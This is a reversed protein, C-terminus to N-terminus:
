SRKYPKAADIYKNMEEFSYDGSDKYDSKDIFKVLETAEPPLILMKNSKLFNKVTKKDNPHLLFETEGIPKLNIKFKSNVAEIAAPSFSKKSVVVPPLHIQYINGPYYVSLQEYLKKVDEDTGVDLGIIIKKAKLTRLLAIQGSTAVKGLLAITREPGCKIASFIGECIIVTDSDKVGDYNWFNYSRFNGKSNLTKPDQSGTIDRAMYGMIEENTEITFVVRKADNWAYLPIKEIIEDTLGRKKLYEWALSDAKTLKHFSKPLYIPEPIADEKKNRQKTGKIQFSDEWGDEELKQTANTKESKIDFCLELAKPFSLNGIKMVLKIPNGKEGCSFCNYMGTEKNIYMKKSKGCNFCTNAILETSRENYLFGQEDLWAQIDLVLTRDENNSM